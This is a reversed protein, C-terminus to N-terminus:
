TPNIELLQRVLARPQGYDERTAVIFMYPGRFWVAIRQQNTATLYVNDKGVRVQTAQVGGVGSVLTDRFKQSQFNASDLFRSVQMTAQLLNDKRFSYVSTSQVYSRRGGALAKSIDEQGTQLGLVDSPVLDASLPKVAKGALGTTNTSSKSKGCAPAALAIVGALAVALATRVFLRV